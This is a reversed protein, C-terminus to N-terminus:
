PQARIYEIAYNLVVDFTRRTTYQLDKQTHELYYDDISQTIYYDPATGYVSNDSGDPNKAGGVMYVCVFKSNPLYVMNYSNMLGEGGTNNGIITAMGNKKMDSVFRDAASGTKKSTLIVVNKDKTAEGEYHYIVKSRYYNECISYPSTTVVEPNIRYKNFYDDLITENEVTMPMYWYGTEEFSGSFLAPYINKSAYSPEGGYNNRFDLIVDDYKLSSLKNKVTSGSTAHMSDLRVYSIKAEDDEYVYFDDEVVTLLTLDSNYWIKTALLSIYMEVNIISSDRNQIKVTVKEGFSDNFVIRNRAPKNNAGDYFLGSGIPQNIVYEDIALGNIELIKSYREYLGSNGLQEDLYYEGDVYSFVTYKLDKYKTGAEDLLKEYKKNYSIVERNALVKKSNYCKQGYISGFSVLDTHFSPVEFIIAEMAAFFELDDKTNLVLNKYVEKRDKFSFGYLQEYEDIMPISQSLLDYLYEFDELKQEQTLNGAENPSPSFIINISSLVTYRCIILAIIFFIISLWDFITIQPKSKMQEKKM